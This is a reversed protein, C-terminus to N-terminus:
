GGFEPRERAWWSRFGPKLTWLPGDWVGAYPVTELTQGIRSTAVRSTLNTWVYDWAAGAPYSSLRHGTTLWALPAFGVATVVLCAWLGPYIRLVRAWAFRGPTTRWRSRTILFGSIAFFGGVAVHGLGADGFAPEWSSGSLPWAHGVIVSLALGLRVANMSNHDPHFRAVLTGGRQM